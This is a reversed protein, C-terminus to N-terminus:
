FDDELFIKVQDIFEKSRELQPLYNSKDIYISEISPLINEYEKSISESEDREKGNIIYISNTLKELCHKLNVTTYHGVLSAFLYKSSSVSSHATEYYTNILSSEVNHSDYFFKNHFLDEIDKKKTLMNYLFTGIVPFNILKALIKTRKSPIRELTNLTLPNVMLIKDIISQNNQCAAITIAASEGTAIIDTKSGIVHKIFDDILQVYLYNTYTLNPKDSRGCGLLDICYVTNNKSLESIIDHWEYGSSYTNLDHILLLPKGQGKATYYVKGFKWEYYSGSPNSLLNDLTASFYIIKNIMHIAATSASILTIGTALKRKWGM